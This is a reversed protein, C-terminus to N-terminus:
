ISLKLTMAVLVYISVFRWYKYTPRPNELLAYFLASLPLMLNIINAKHAFNIFFLAFLIWEAQSIFLAKLLLLLPVERLRRNSKVIHEDNYLSYFILNNTGYKLILRKTGYYMSYM